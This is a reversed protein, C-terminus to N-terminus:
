FVKRVLGLRLGVGEFNDAYYSNFAATELLYNLEFVVSTRASLPRTYGINAFIGRSSFDEINNLNEPLETAGTGCFGIPMYERGNLNDTYSLGGSAYLSRYKFGFGYQYVLADKQTLVGSFSNTSLTANQYYRHQYEARGVLFLFDLLYINLHLGATINAQQANNYQYERMWNRGGGGTTLGIETKFQAQATTACLVFLITTTKKM